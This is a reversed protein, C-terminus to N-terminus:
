LIEMYKLQKILTNFVDWDMFLKNSCGHPRSCIICEGTCVNSVNIEIEVPHILM